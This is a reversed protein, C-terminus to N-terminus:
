LDTKVNAHCSLTRERCRQEEASAMWEGGPWNSVVFGCALRCRGHLSFHQYTDSDDM